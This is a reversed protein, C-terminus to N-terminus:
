KPTGPPRSNVSIMFWILGANNESAKVPQTQGLGGRDNTKLRMGFKAVARAEFRAMEDRGRVEASFLGDVGHAAVPADLVSQVPHEVDGEGYVLRAQSLLRSGSTVRSKRRREKPGMRSQARVHVADALAMLPRSAWMAAHFLIAPSAV